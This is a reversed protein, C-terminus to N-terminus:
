LVIQVKDSKKLDAFIAALQKEGTATIAVTIAIFRGNRSPREAVDEEPIPGAHKEMVEAVWSRLEECEFGVVKIPYRCPFVIKPAEPKTM